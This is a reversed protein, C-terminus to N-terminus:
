IQKAKPSQDLFFNISNRDSFAKGMNLELLKKVYFKINLDKFCKSNIKPYPTLLTSVENIKMLSDLKQLM